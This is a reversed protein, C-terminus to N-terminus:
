SWCLACNETIKNMENVERGVHKPSSGNELLFVDIKVNYFHKLVLM